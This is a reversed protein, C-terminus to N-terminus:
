IGAQKDAISSFREDSPSYASSKGLPIPKKKPPPVGRFTLLSPIVSRKSLGQSKIGQGGGKAVVM